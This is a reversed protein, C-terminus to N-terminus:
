RDAEETQKNNKGYLILITLAQTFFATICAAMWIQPLTNVNILKNPGCYFWIGMSLCGFVGYSAAFGSKTSQLQILRDREDMQVGGPDNKFILSGLGAFGALAMFAFGAQARPFGIKFYLVTVTIASLIFGIGVCIVTMWAMKQMRNM